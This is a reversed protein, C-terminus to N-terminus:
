GWEFLLANVEQRAYSELGTGRSYAKSLARLRAITRCQVFNESDSGNTPNKISCCKETSPRVCKDRGRHMSGMM